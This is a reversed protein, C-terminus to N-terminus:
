SVGTRWRATAVLRQLVAIYAAARLQVQYQQALGWIEELAGTMAMTLRQNVESESWYWSQQNQVWEFYSAVVGGANALVDPIVIIGQQRLIEDAHDAIPHNALELIIKAQVQRANADTIQDEIAALVLVDVSLELLESNLLNQAYSANEVNGTASKHDFVSQLNLGSLNYVASQSDSIAVVKYKPDRDLLHALGGGVNGIGQIAVTLPTKTLGLKRVMADLVVKGGLSTAQHRGASGFLEVPKGTVIAPVSYGSLRSYEDMMWGMTDSNTNVDPAPIDRLPGLVDYFARIYARALREHEALSLEKANVQVGGKGGGFPINTAATKFTMLGSLTAVEELTVKPHFRIGGKYPGRWNNHQVRWAPVVLSSGDDRLISLERLHVQDPRTLRQIISPSVKLLAAAQTLASPLQITVQKSDIAPM